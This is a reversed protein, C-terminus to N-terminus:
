FIEDPVRGTLENQQLLLVELEKLQTTEEPISGTLKNNYLSLWKLKSCKGIEKPIEGGLMNDHLSLWELNALKGIEPPIAGVIGKNGSLSLTRLATLSGIEKPIMGHLGNGTLDLGYVRGSRDCSVGAWHEACPDTGGDTWGKSRKWGSQDDVGLRSGIKVLSAYDAKALADADETKREIDGIKQRKSKELVFDWDIDVISTDYIELDHKGDAGYRYVNIGGSGGKWFVRVSGEVELPQVPKYRKTKAADVINDPAKEDARNGGQLDGVPSKKWKRVEVVIGLAVKGDPTQGDQNGYQWDAGRKVVMGVQIQVTDIPPQPIDHNVSRGGSLFLVLVCALFQVCRCARRKMACRKLGLMSRVSFVSCGIWVFFFPSFPLVPLIISRNPFTILVRERLYVTPKRIM